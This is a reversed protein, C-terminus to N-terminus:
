GQGELDGIETDEEPSWRTEPAKADFKCDKLEISKNTRHKQDFQCDDMWLSASRECVSRFLPYKIGTFSCREFHGLFIDSSEFISGNGPSRGFGGIFETDIAHVILGENISFLTCGGHGADFRVLRVNSLRLVLSGQRKDFLGDNDCDITVDRFGLHDVDDRTFRADTLKLTTKDKGGGVFTVGGPFKKGRNELTRMLVQEDITYTGAPFFIETNEELELIHNPDKLLLRGDMQNVAMEPEALEAVKVRTFGFGALSDFQMEDLVNVIALGDLEEFGRRLTALRNAERGAQTALNGALSRITNKFTGMAVATTKEPPLEGTELKYTSEFQSKAADLLEQTPEQAVGVDTFSVLFLGIFTLSRCLTKM